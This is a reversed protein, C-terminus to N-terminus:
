DDKFAPFITADKTITRRFMAVPSYISERPTLTITPSSVPPSPCAVSGLCDMSIKSLRFDNFMTTTIYIIKIRQSETQLHYCFALFVKLRQKNGQNVDRLTTSDETDFFKLTDIIEDNVTILDHIDLIVERLLSAKLGSKPQNSMVSDLVHNFAGDTDARTVVM